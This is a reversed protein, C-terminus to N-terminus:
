GVKRLVEQHFGTDPPMGVGGNKQVPESEKLYPAEGEKRGYVREKETTLYTKKETAIWRAEKGRPGWKRRCKSAGKMKKQSLHPKGM